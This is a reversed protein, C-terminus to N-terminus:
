PDGTETPLGRQKWVSMHGELYLVHAFGAARLQLKAMGARPGHECYVIVPESAPSPIESRRAYVAYFPIHLAGPIHAAAYERDSRVDVIPPATGNRIAALLEDPSNHTVADGASAQRATALSLVQVLLLIGCFRM